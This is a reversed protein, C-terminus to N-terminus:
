RGTGRTPKVESSMTYEFPRDAALGLAGLDAM